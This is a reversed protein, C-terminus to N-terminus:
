GAARANLVEDRLTKRSYKGVATRPLAQRIEVGQPLEHRGLRTDLFARLAEITLPAAGDRLVVYAWASEGRYDDPLGIVMAEVVDPHELVAHEVALPYVNYGGSLILDKKRDVLYLFGDEDAYGIDGTLFWGDVFSDATEQPNNHYGSMLTPSKIRM